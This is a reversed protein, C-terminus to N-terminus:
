EVRISRAPDIHAIYTSTIFLALACITATVASVGLFYIVDLDIPVFDMSYSESDLRVVHFKHQIWCLLLALLNGALLGKGVISGAKLMFVSRISRNTAGLTKLIGIMSTKEFIMILLASVVSAACVVGMITLILVINSNLLELWAFMSPENEKITTVKLDPRTCQKVQQALPDLLNMDQLLIEYGGVTTGPWDNLRQILNIDGILYHDDFESIDTNYIGVIRLARARYDNGLWFYLRAKMGTDLHMKAALRQSVIVEDGPSATDANLPLRGRLMHQQFFDTGEAVNNRDLSVGKFIIGQIQDDTKLMGGKYAFPAVSAVGEIRELAAVEDTSLSIGDVDYENVWGYNQVVIHAGFGVLKEEIGQQFGRLISVAMIMVVVGLAITYTAIRVLPHSFNDKDGKLFRRAILQEYSM